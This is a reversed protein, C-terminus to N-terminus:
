YQCDEIEALFTATMPVEFEELLLIEQAAKFTVDNSTAITSISTVSNYAHHLEDTLTVTGLNIDYPCCDTFQSWIIDGQLSNDLLPDCDNSGAIGGLICVEDGCCNYITTVADTCLNNDGWFVVYGVNNVTILQVQRVCSYCDPDEYWSLDDQSCSGCAGPTWSTVGYDYKAYCSNGYTIGDCGCVPDLVDLCGIPQQTLTLDICCSISKEWITNIYVYTNFFDPCQNTGAIGGKTCVISGSCDYVITLGDTCFDNDAWFVIHTVGNYSVVEISSFCGDCQPTIIWSLNNIDCACAGQTYSTVGGYAIAECYNPYTIGNCGCVPDLVTPCIGNNDILCEDICCTEAQDWLRTVSNYNAMIQDCQTLGGIGGQM